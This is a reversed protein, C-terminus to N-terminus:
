AYGTQTGRASIKQITKKKFSVCSCSPFDLFDGTKWEISIKMSILM